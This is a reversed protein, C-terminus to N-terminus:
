EKNRTEAEIRKTWPQILTVLVLPILIALALLASLASALPLNRDVFTRQAIKNGIMESSSGGVLDPIVYAGIAPIFVMVMATLIGKRIGPVFIQFFSQRKTAGLDMAAEILQFNFKSAAAYIPFVAFPLYTYVMVLLVAAPNYLLTTDPSIIHLSVLFAKFAGEPHLLSKWAFIRILFSTWFPVVLLLLLLQRMKPSTQALQYGVPLALLLCFITTLVSLWTTRWILIYYNPDALQKITELTWEPGIDGYTNSTRFAYAFVFITPVLFFIALWFFSPLTLYFENKKEKSLM